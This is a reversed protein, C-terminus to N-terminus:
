LFIHFVPFKIDFFILNGIVSVIYVQSTTSLFGNYYEYLEPIKQIEALKKKTNIFKDMENTYESEDIDETLKKKVIYKQRKLLVDDTKNLKVSQVKSCLEIVNNLCGLNEKSYKTLTELWKITEEVKKTKVFASDFKYTQPENLLILLKQLSFMSCDCVYEGVGRSSLSLEICKVYNDIAKFYTELSKDKKKSNIKGIYFRLLLRLNHDKPAHTLAIEYYKEALEYYYDNVLKHSQYQEGAKYYLWLPNRDFIKEMKELLLDAKKHDEYEKPYGIESARRLIISYHCFPICIQRDDNEIFNKRNISKEFNYIGKNFNEKTKEMEYIYLLALRCHAMGITYYDVDIDREIILNFYKIAFDREVSTLNSRSAFNYGVKYLRDSDMMHYDFIEAKEIDKYKEDFGYREPNILLSVVDTMDFNFPLNLSYISSAAAVAKEFDGDNKLKKKKYCDALRCFCEAIQINNITGDKKYELAKQFLEIAIIIDEDTAKYKWLYDEAEQKFKAATNDIHSKNEMIKNHINMSMNIDLSNTIAHFQGTTSNEIATSFNKFM